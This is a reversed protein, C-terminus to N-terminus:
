EEEEHELAEDEETPAEAFKINMDDLGLKDVLGKLSTFVHGVEDDAAFSGKLDIDTMMQQILLTKEAYFYIWDRLNLLSKNKQVLVYTAFIAYIGVLTLAIILITITM